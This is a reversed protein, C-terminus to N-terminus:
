VVCAKREGQAYRHLYGVYVYKYEDGIGDKPTNRHQLLRIAERNPSYFLFLFLYFYFVRRVVTPQYWYLDGQGRRGAVRGGM